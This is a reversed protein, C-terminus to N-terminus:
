WGSPYFYNVGPKVEGGRENLNALQLINMQLDILCASDQTTYPTSSLGARMGSHLKVKTM